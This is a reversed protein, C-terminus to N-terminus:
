KIDWSSFPKTYKIIHNISNDPLYDPQFLPINTNTPKHINHNYIETYPLDIYKYEPWFQEQLLIKFDFNNRKSVEYAFEWHFIRNCFGTDNPIKYGGWPEVWKLYPM